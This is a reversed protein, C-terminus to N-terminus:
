GGSITPIIEVTDGDALPRTRAHHLLLEDNVAFNFVSDDLQDKFGPIRADLAEVLDAVTALPEAFTLTDSPGVRLTGPLRVTIM